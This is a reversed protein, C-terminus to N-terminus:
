NFVFPIDVDRLALEVRSTTVTVDGHVRHGHDRPFTPLTNTTQTHTGGPYIESCLWLPVRSPYRFNMTRGDSARQSSLEDLRM